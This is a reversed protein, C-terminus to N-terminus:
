QSKKNDLLLKYIADLKASTNQMSNRMQFVAVMLVVWFIVTLIPILIGLAMFGANAVQVYFGGNM